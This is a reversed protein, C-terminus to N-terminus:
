EDTKVRSKVKRVKSKATRVVLTPQVIYYGKRNLEAIHRKGLRYENNDLRHHEVMNNKNQKKQQRTGAPEQYLGM